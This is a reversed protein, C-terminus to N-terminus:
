GLEDPMSSFKNGDLFMVELYQIKGLNSPDSSLILSEYGADTASGEQLRPFIEDGSSNYKDSWWWHLTNSLIDVFLSVSVSPLGRGEMMRLLRVAKDTGGIKYLGNLVTSYVILHPQYGKEIMEDFLSLAQSIKSQKRLGNILTTLTVVSPEVGSNSMKGLVYYEFDVRGLVSPMPPQDVM